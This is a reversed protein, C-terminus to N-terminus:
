VFIGPLLSGLQHSNGLHLLFLWRKIRALLGLLLLLFMWFSTKRHTHLLQMISMNKTLRLGDNSGLIKLLCPLECTLLSDGILTLSQYLCLLVAVRPVCIICCTNECHQRAFIDSSNETFHSSPVLQSGIMSRMSRDSGWNAPTLGDQNLWDEKKNQFDCTRM